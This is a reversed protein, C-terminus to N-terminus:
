EFRQIVINFLTIVNIHRDMLLSLLIRVFCTVFVKLSGKVDPTLLSAKRKMPDHSPKGMM